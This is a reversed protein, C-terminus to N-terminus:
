GVEISAASSEMLWKSWRLNMDLNPMEKGGGEGGGGGKESVVGCVCVSM